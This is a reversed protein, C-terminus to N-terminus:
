NKSKRKLAFITAVAGSVLLLGWFIIKKKPSPKANSDILETGTLNMTAQEVRAYQDFGEINRVEDKALLRNTPYLFPTMRKSGVSVFRFDLNLTADSMVPRLTLNSSLPKISNTGDCQLLVSQLRGEAARSYVRLTYEKPVAYGQIKSYSSVTFVANTNGADDLYTWRSPIKSASDFELMVPIPRRDMVETDYPAVMTTVNKGEFFCGSATAMWVVPIHPYPAYYPVAEETLNVGQAVDGLEGMWQMRTVGDFVSHQTMLTNKVTTDVITIQSACGDVKVSYSMAPFAHLKAAAGVALSLTLSGEVEYEQGDTRFLGVFAALFFVFLLTARKVSRLSCSALPLFFSNNV